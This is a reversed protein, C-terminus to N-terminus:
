AQELFMVIILQNRLRNSTAVYEGKLNTFDVTYQVIKLSTFRVVLTLILQKMNMKEKKFVTLLFYSLVIVVIGQLQKYDFFRLWGISHNKSQL